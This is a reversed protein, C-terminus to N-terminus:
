FITDTPTPLKVENNRIERNRIEDSYQETNTGARFYTSDLVKQITPREAPNWDLMKLTLKRAQEDSFDGRLHEFTTLNKLDNFDDYITNKTHLFYIIAGLSFIDQAHSVRLDTLETHLVEPATYGRSCLPSVRDDGEDSLLYDGFKKASEFDCLRVKYIDTHKCIINGPKLDLHAIEKEHCYKLANSISSLIHKISIADRFRFHHVDLTEGAYSTVSVFGGMLNSQEMDEWKVVSKSKLLRLFKTETDWLNRRSFVKIIVPNATIIHQGKYLVNRYRSSNENLHSDEDDGISHIIVYKNCVIKLEQREPIPPSQRFDESTSTHTMRRSGARSLPNRMPPEDDSFHSMPSSPSPHITSPRRPQNPLQQPGVSSEGGEIDETKEKEPVTQNLMQNPRKPLSTEALTFQHVNDLNNTAGSASSSSSVGSMRNQPQPRSNLVTDYDDQSVDEEIIQQFTSFEHFSLSFRIYGADLGGETFTLEGTEIPGGQMLKKWNTESGIEFRTKAFENTQSGYRCQVLLVLKKKDKAQLDMSIAYKCSTNSAKWYRLTSHIKPKNLVFELHGTKRLGRCSIKDLLLMGIKDGERTEDSLEEDANHPPSGSLFYMDFVIQGVSTEHKMVDMIVRNEHEKYLRLDAKAEGILAENGRRKMDFVRVRLDDKIPPHLEYTLHENWLAKGREDIKSETTTKTSGNAIVELNIARAKNGIFPFKSQREGRELLGCRIHKILLVGPRKQPSLSTPLSSVSSPGSSNYPLSM